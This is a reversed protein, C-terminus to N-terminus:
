CLFALNSIKSFNDNYESQHEGQPYDENLDEFDCKKHTHSKDIKKKHLLHFFSFIKAMGFRYQGEWGTGEGLLHPSLSGEDDVTCTAESIIRDHKRKRDRLRM